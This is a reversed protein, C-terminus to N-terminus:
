TDVDIRRFLPCMFGVTVYSLITYRKNNNKYREMSTELVKTNYFICILYGRENKYICGGRIHLFEVELMFLSEAM